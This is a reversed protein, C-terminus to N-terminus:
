IRFICIESQSLGSMRYDGPPKVWIKSDIIFSNGFILKNFQVPLIDKEAAPPASLLCEQYYNSCLSYFSIQDECCKNRVTPEAPCDSGPKEMGCSALRGTVSLKVDVLNGGCYHRDISVKIGSTILIASVLITLVKKM